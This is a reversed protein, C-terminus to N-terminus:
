TFLGQVGGVVVPALWMQGSLLLGQGFRSSGFGLGFSFGSLSLRLGLRLGLRLRSFCGRRVVASGRTSCRQSRRNAM